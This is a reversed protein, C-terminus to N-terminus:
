VVLDADRIEPRFGSRGGAVLDFGMRDMCLKFCELFERRRQCRVRNFSSVYLQAQSASRYQSREMAEEM